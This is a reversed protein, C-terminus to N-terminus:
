INTFFLELDLIQRTFNFYVTKLNPGNDLVRINGM